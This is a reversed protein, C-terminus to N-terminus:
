GGRRYSKDENAENELFGMRVLLDLDALLCSYRRMNATIEDVYTPHVFKSQFKGGKRSPLIVHPSSAFYLHNGEEFDIQLKQKFDRLLSDGLYPFNIKFIILGDYLEESQGPVRPQNSKM